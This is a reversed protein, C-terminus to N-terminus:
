EDSIRKPVPNLRSAESYVNRFIIIFYKTGPRSILVTYLEYTMLRESLHANRAFGDTWYNRVGDFCCRQSQRWGIKWGNSRKRQTYTRWISHLQKWPKHKREGKEKWKKKKTWALVDAHTGHCRSIFALKNNFGLAFTFQMCFPELPTQRDGWECGFHRLMKRMSVSACCLTYSFNRVWEACWIKQLIRRFFHSCFVFNYINNAMILLEFSFRILQEMGNWKIRKTENRKKKMQLKRERETPIM